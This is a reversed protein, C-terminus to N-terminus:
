GLGLERAVAALVPLPDGGPETPDIAAYDQEIVGVTAVLRGHAVPDGGARRDAAAGIWKVVDVLRGFVAGGDPPPGTGDDGPGPRRSM